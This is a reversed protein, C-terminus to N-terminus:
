TESSSSSMSASPAVFSVLIPTVIAAFEEAPRTHTVSVTTGDVGSETAELATVLDESDEMEESSAKVQQEALTLVGALIDNMDEAADADSAEINLTAVRDDGDPSISGYGYTAETFISTDFQAGTNEPVRAELVDFAYRAHGDTSADYADRVDGSIADEDGNWTDIVDEVYGETGVTFVGEELVAMLAPSEENQQEQRYTTKDGYSDEEYQAGEEELAELLDDTTWESWFTFAAQDTDSEEYLGSFISKTLARPDLNAEDEIMDLADEVSQPIEEGGVEDRISSLEDNIGDQLSDDEFLAVFDAEFVYQADQPVTEIPAKGGSIADTVQSCGSLSGIAGVTALGGAARLVDRRSRTCRVM